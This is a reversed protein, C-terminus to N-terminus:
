GFDVVTAPADARLGAATPAEVSVRSMSDDFTVLLVAAGADAAVSHAEELAAASAPAPVGCATLFREGLGMELEYAELELEELRPAVSVGGLEARVLCATIADKTREAAEILWAVLAEARDDPRLGAVLATLRERGLLGDGARAEILGDSLFCATSGPAFPV